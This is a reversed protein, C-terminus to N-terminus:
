NVRKANKPRFTERVSGTVVVVESVWADDDNRKKLYKLAVLCAGVPLCLILALAALIPLLIVAAAVISIIIVIWLTALLLVHLNTIFLVSAVIFFASSLGGEEFLIFKVEGDETTYMLSVVFSVVLVEYLIGLVVVIPVKFPHLVQAWLTPSKYEKFQEKVVNLKVMEALQEAKQKSAKIGHGEFVLDAFSESQLLSITDIWFKVSFQRMENYNVFFFAIVGLIPLIGGVVAAYILFPSAKVCDPNDAECTEPNEQFIKLAVAVVITLHAVIQAFLHICFWTVLHYYSKQLGSSDLPNRRLNIASIIVMIIRIIYVSLVLYFSGIAFNSFDLREERNSRRFSGGTFLDFLDLILLPYIILETIVNRVVEFWENLIANWKPSIQWWKKGGGNNGEELSKAGQKKERQSKSRWYRLCKACSGSQIFYLFSDLLALMLALISFLLHIIQFTSRSDLGLNTISYAFQFLTAALEAYVWIDQLIKPLAPFFLKGM